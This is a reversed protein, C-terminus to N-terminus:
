FPQTHEQQSACQVFKKLHPLSGYLSATWPKENGSQFTIRLSKSDKLMSLFVATAQSPLALDLIQGDGYTDVQLYKNDMFDVAVPIKKGRPIKWSDKYLTINLHDSGGFSKIAINKVIQGSAPAVVMSCIPAGTKSRDNFSAWKTLAGQNEASSLQPALLGIAISATLLGKIM